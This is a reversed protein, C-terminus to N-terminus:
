DKPRKPMSSIAPERAILEPSPNEWAIERRPGGTWDIVTRGRGNRYVGGALDGRHQHSLRLIDRIGRLVLWTAGLLTLPVVLLWLAQILESSTHFKDLWDAWASYPQEM